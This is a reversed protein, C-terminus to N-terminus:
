FRRRETNRFAEGYGTSGRYNVELVLYGSQALFQAWGDAHHVAHGEPGGHVWVVLPLKAGTAASKPKYLLGVIQKGDKSPWTIRDPVQAAAQFNKSTTQTIQTPPSAM